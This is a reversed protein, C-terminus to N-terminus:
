RGNRLQSCPRRTAVGVPGVAPTSRAVLRARCRGRRRRTGAPTRRAARARCPREAIPQADTGDPLGRLRDADRGAAGSAADARDLACTATPDVRISGAKAGARHHGSSVMVRRERAAAGRTQDRSRRTNAAVRGVPRPRAPKM